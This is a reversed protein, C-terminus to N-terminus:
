HSSREARILYGIPEEVLLVDKRCFFPSFLSCRKLLFTAKRRWKSSTEYIKEISYSTHLWSSSLGGAATGGAPWRLGHAHAAPSWLSGTSGCCRQGEAPRWPGTGPSSSGCRRARLCGWRGATKPQSADTYDWCSRLVPFISLHTLTVEQWCSTVSGSM